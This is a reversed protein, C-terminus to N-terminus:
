NGRAAKLFSDDYYKSYPPLPEKLDEIAVLSGLIDQMAADTMVGDARYARLEKIYFDYTNESDEPKAGTEKTLIEVAEKRNKPDYLWATAALMTKLFAVATARNKSAWETNAAFVTFPSNPTYDRQVGIVPFGQAIAMFDFPQILLTADVAGSVLAAFRNNTAGSYLYEFDALNLGHKATIARWYIYTIDKTGALMVKKGKLDAFSKISKSANWRYPPVALDASVIKVPAGQETARIFDPIGGHAMMFTGAALGQVTKSSMGTSVIDVDLGNAAFMGRNKATFLQWIAANAGVTGFDIKARQQAAAPAIAIAIAAAALGVLRM